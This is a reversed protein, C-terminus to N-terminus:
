TAVALNIKPNVKKALFPPNIGCIQLVERFPTPLNQKATLSLIM